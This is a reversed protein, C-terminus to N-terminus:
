SSEGVLSNGEAKGEQNKGGLFISSCYGKQLSVVKGILWATEHGQIDRLVQQAMEKQVVLVAGVGCNFTRAMEEESLNGEKHLWCFIEPIKWSLADPFTQFKHTPLM